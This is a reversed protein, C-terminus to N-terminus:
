EDIRSLEVFRSRHLRGYFVSIVNRARISATDANKVLLAAPSDVLVTCPAPESVSLGSRACSRVQDSPLRADSAQSGDGGCTTGPSARM